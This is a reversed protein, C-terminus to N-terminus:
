LVRRQKSLQFGFGHADIVANGLKEHPRSAQILLSCTRVILIVSNSWFLAALQGSSGGPPQFVFLHVLVNLITKRKSVLGAGHYDSKDRLYSGM